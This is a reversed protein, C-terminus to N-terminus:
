IKKITSPILQQQTSFGRTVLGLYFSCLVCWTNQSRAVAADHQKDKAVSKGVCPPRPLRKHICSGQGLPARLVASGVAFTHGNADLRSGEAAGREVETHSSM